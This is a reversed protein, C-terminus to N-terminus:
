NAATLNGMADSFIQTNALCYINCNNVTNDIESKIDFNFSDNKYNSFEGIYLQDLRVGSGFVQAAKEVVNRTWAANQNWKWSKVLGQDEHQPTNLLETRPEVMLKVDETHPSMSCSMNDAYSAISDIFTRSRLAQYCDDRNSQEFNLSYMFPFRVSGKNFTIEKMKAEEYDGDLELLPPTSLSNYALNSSWASPLYNMIITSVQSLNLNANTHDRSSNILSLFNYYSSYVEEMNEPKIPESLVQYRGSLFLDRFEYIFNGDDANSGYLVQATNALSISIQLGGQALNIAPVSDLFGTRMKLSFPIDSAATRAIYDQNPGNAFTNQHHCCLDKYSTTVAMISSLQRNYNKTQEYLNDKMNAVSVNLLGSSVSVRDDPYCVYSYSPQVTVNAGDLDFTNAPNELNAGSRSYIRLKGNLRLSSADITRGFNENFEFQILPSSAYYSYSDSKQLPFLKFPQTEVIQAM